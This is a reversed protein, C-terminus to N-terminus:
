NWGLGSPRPGTAPFAGTETELVLDASASNAFIVRGSTHLYEHLMDDGFHIEGSQRFNLPITAANPASTDNVRRACDFVWLRDALGEEFFARALIPGPEVILHTVKLGGLTKLFDPISHAAIVEVGAAALAEAAPSGLSLPDCGVMVPNEHATQVLKSDLPLQLRRDLVCRLLPRATAVFRATLLPDDVLVTNIGVLVADCRARLRHVAHMSQPNSIQMRVGGPGAIKGDASQAWKLTVYPRHLVTRAIFPAILQQCENELASHDVQIGADRLLAAGKGNVQPNPDLCGIVIRAIGAEILRPVCPPTQKDLHCCPELTVYATASRPDETCAALATPEAHPGGYQAHFGEGIIQDNKVIVCGVMPNPEVGGRGNMALRIARHLFQDDSASM